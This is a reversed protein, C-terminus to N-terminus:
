SLTPKFFFFFSLHRCEAEAEAFSSLSRHIMIWVYTTISVTWVCHLAWAPSSMARRWYLGESSWGEPGPEQGPNDAPHRGGGAREPPLDSLSLTFYHAHLFSLRRFGQSTCLSNCSSLLNGGEFCCVLSLHYCVHCLILLILSATQCPVRLSLSLHGTCTNKQQLSLDLQISVRNLYVCVSVCVCVYVCVCLLCKVTGTQSEEAELGRCCMCIFLLRLAGKVGWLLCVSHSLSPQLPSTSLM